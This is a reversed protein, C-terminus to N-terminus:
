RLIMQFESSAIEEDLLVSEPADNGEGRCSRLLKSHGTIQEMSM